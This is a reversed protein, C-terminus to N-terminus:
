TARWYFIPLRNGDSVGWRIARSASTVRNMTHLDTISNPQAVGGAALHITLWQNSGNIVSGFGDNIPDEIHGPITGGYDVFKWNRGMIEVDTTIAIGQNRVNGFRVQWHSDM